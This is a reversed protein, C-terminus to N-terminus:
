GPPSCPIVASTALPMHSEPLPSAAQLNYGTGAEKRVLALPKSPDAGQVDYFPTLPLANAQQAAMAAGDQASASSGVALVGAIIAALSRFIPM